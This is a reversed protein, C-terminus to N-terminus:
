SPRAGGFQIWSPPNVGLNNVDVLNLQSFDPGDAQPNAQQLISKLCNNINPAVIRLANNTMRNLAAAVNNIEASIGDFVQKVASGVTDFVARAASGVADFFGSVASCVANIAGGIVSSVGTAIAAILGTAASTVTNILALPVGILVNTIAGLGSTISNLTDNFKGQVSGIFEACDQCRGPTGVQNPKFWTDIADFIRTGNDIVNQAHSHMASLASPLQGIQGISGFCQSVQAAQQPTLNAEAAAMAAAAPDGLVSPTRGAISGSSVSSAGATSGSYAVSASNQVGTNPDGFVPATDTQEIKGTVYNFIIYRPNSAM